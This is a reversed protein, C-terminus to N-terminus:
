RRSACRRTGAGSITRGYRLISGSVTTAWTPGVFEPLVYEASWNRASVPRPTKAAGSRMSACSACRRSLACSPSSFTPRTVPSSRMLSFAGIMQQVASIAGREGPLHEHEVLHLPCVVALAAGGPCPEQERALVFVDKEEAGDLRQREELVREGVGLDAEELALRREVPGARNGKLAEPGARDDDCEAATGHEREGPLQVPPLRAADSDEVARHREARSAEFDLAEHVPLGVDAAGGVHEPVADVEGALREQEGLRLLEVALLAAIQM